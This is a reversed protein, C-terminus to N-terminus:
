EEVELGHKVLLAQVRGALEDTLASNNALGSAFDQPEGILLNSVTIEEKIRGDEIRAIIGELIEIPTYQSVALRWLNGNLYSDLEDPTSLEEEWISYFIDKPTAPNMLLTNRPTRSDAWYFGGVGSQPGVEDQALLRILKEDSVQESAWCRIESVCYAFDSVERSMEVVLQLFDEIGVPAVDEFVEVWFTDNAGPAEVADLLSLYILAEAAELDVEESELGLAEWFFAYAEDDYNEQPDFSPELAFLAAMESTKNPHVQLLEKVVPNLEQKSMGIREVIEASSAQNYAYAYKALPESALLEIDPSFKANTMAGFRVLPQDSKLAESHVQADDGMSALFFYRIPSSEPMKQTAVEFRLEIEDLHGKNFDKSNTRKFLRPNLM